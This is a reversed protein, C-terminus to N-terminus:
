QIIHEDYVVSVSTSASFIDVSVLVITESCGTQACLITNHTHICTCVIVSDWSRARTYLLYLACLHEYKNVYTSVFVHFCAHTGM